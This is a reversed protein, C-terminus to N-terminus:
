RKGHSSRSPAPAVAGVQADTVVKRLFKDSLTGTFVASNGNQEVRISNLAAKVDPDGGKMGLSQGASRYLVLFTNASNMVHRADAESAAVVEARLLVADTYRLSVVAVTNELFDFSLGGPLQAAESNAPIRDIMWALSGLPVKSFYEGLLSPAAGPKQRSEIIGHMPQSSVMNTVAVTSGDLICVRVTHGENAISYIGLGHYEETGASIGQLYNSLRARDFRGVFIESSEVDAGDSADRRSMAVEDLDREYQIGTKDVFQQYDGELHPPKSQKLALLHAPRLDAYLLLDGEPLMRVIAPASQGHLLSYGIGLVAPLRQRHSLWYGAAAGGALLLLVSILLKRHKRM